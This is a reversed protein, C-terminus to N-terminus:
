KTWVTGNKKLGRRVLVLLGSGLLLLSSPIPVAAVTSTFTLNDIAFKKDSVLAVWNFELSPNAAYTLWPGTTHATIQDATVATWGNTVTNYFIVNILATANANAGPRKYEFSLGTCLDDFGMAIGTLVTQGQPKSLGLFKSTPQPDLFTTTTPWSWTNSAFVSGGFLDNPFGLGSPTASGSRFHVGQAAYEDTIPIGFTLNEDFTITTAAGASQSIGFLLAVFCLFISIKKM